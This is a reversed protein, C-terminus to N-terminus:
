STVMLLFIIGIGLLALYYEPFMNFGPFGSKWVFPLTASGTKTNVTLALQDYLPLAVLGAGIIFGATRM